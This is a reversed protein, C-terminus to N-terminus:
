GEKGGATIARYIADNMRQMLEAYDAQARMFAKVAEHSAVAQRLREVSRKEEVEVPQAAQEKRAVQDVARNYAGLAETATQDARVRADTERLRVYRPHRRIAEGLVGALRLVEELGEEM